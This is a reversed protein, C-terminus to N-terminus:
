GQDPLPNKAQVGDQVLQNLEKQTEALLRALHEMQFQIRWVREQLVERRLRAMEDTWKNEEAM